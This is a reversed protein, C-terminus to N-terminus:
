PRSICATKSPPSFAPSPGSSRTWSGGIPRTRRGGSGNLRNTEQVYARMSAAISEASVLRDTLGSLVRQEIMERRITRANARAEAIIVWGATPGV